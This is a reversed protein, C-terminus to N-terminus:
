DPTAISIHTSFIALFYPFASQYFVGVDPHVSCLHIGHARHRALAALFLCLSFLDTELSCGGEEDEAMKDIGSAVRCCLGPLCATSFYELSRHPLCQLICGALATQGVGAGEGVGSELLQHLLERPLWPESSCSRRHAERLFFPPCLGKLSARSVLVQLQRVFKESEGVSRTTDSFGRNDHDYGWDLNVAAWSTLSLDPAPCM